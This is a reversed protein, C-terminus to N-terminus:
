KTRLASSDIGEMINKESIWVNMAYKVVEGEDRPPVAEHLADLLLDGKKLFLTEGDESMVDEVAVNNWLIGDGARPLIAVDLKSFRTHGGGDDLPVDSLYLLLTVPRQESSTVGYFSGHDHHPRYFQGPEYRVLQLPEVHDEEVDLFSAIRQFIVRAFIIEAEIHPPLRGSAKLEPLRPLFILPWMIPCTHSTRTPDEAGVTTGGLFQLSSQWGNRDDCFQIM